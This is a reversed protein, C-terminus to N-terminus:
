LRRAPLGLIKYRQYPQSQNKEEKIPTLRLDGQHKTEPDPNYEKGKNNSYQLHPRHNIIIRDQCVGKNYFLICAFLFAPIVTRM